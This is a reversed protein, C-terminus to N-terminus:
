GRGITLDDPSSMQLSFTPPIADSPPRRCMPLWPPGDRHFEYFHCAPPGRDHRAVCRRRVPSRTQTTQAASSAGETPPRTNEPYRSHPSQNHRQHCERSHATHLQVRPTRISARSSSAFRCEVGNGADRNSRTPSTGDQNLTSRWGHLSYSDRPRPRRRWPMHQEQVAEAAAHAAAASPDLGLTRLLAL